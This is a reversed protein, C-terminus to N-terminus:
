IHYNLIGFLHLDEVLLINKSHTRANQIYLKNYSNRTGDNDTIESFTECNMDDIGNIIKIDQIMDGRLRKQWISTLGLYELQQTYTMHRTKVLLTTARRQVREVSISQYKPYWIVNAHEIHPRILSKYLSLFTKKDLFVFTQKLIGLIKTAKHTIEYIHHKLNM